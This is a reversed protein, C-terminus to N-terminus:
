FRAIQTPTCTCAVDPDLYDGCLCPELAWAAVPRDTHSGYYAAFREGDRPNGNSMFGVPHNGVLAVEIMRKVHSNGPMTDLRLRSPDAFPLVVGCSGCRYVMEEYVDEM